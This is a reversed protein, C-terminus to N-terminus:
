IDDLVLAGAVFRGSEGAAVVRPTDLVGWRYDEGVVGARVAFHTLSASDGGTNLPFAIETNNPSVGLAPTDFENANVTQLQYGTYTAFPLSAWPTTEAPPAATMLAVELTPHYALFDTLGRNQLAQSAPM